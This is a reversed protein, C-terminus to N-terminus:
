SFQIFKTSNKIDLVVHIMSFSINFFHINIALKPM